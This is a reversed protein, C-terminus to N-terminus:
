RVKCSENCDSLVLSHFDCERTLRNDGAFHDLYDSWDSSSTVDLRLTSAEFALQEAVSIDWALAFSERSEMTVPRLAREVKDPGWSELKAKHWNDLGRWTKHKMGGAEVMKWALEQLVPIGLNCAAECRGVSAVLRPFFAPPHPQVTWESRVMVRRPNRVMRWGIGDWVPRCQCFECREFIDTAEVKSEMGWNLFWATPDCAEVKSLERSDFIVVSDDGDVYFAAKIGAEKAWTSLLAYNIVCNGLATNCDGSMRTGPTQFKTGNRTGGRNQVQWKLLSKLVSSNCKRLYLNHEYQLLTKNVHADWGSQDLLLYYPNCFEQSKALLDAAREVSNRGKAFVPTGSCDLTKYVDQEIPHIFRGLEIGYRKNRFQICRPAKYKMGPELEYKDAKLFM